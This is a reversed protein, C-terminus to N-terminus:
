RNSAWYGASYERYFSPTPNKEAAPRMKQYIEWDADSYEDTRPRKVRSKLRKQVLEPPAEVSVLILRAGTREAINYIIKRHREALNTADLIVSMGKKLLKELRQHITQFLSVSEAASYDPTPFLQKRLAYSELIVYPLREALRRCFFTKGTGPLGSVVIIVPRTLKPTLPNNSDAPQRADDIVYSTEM